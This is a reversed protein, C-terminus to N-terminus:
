CRVALVALGRGGGRAPAAPRRNQPPAAGRGSRWGSRLRRRGALHAGAGDWLAAAAALRRRPQPAEKEFLAPGPNIREQQTSTTTRQSRPPECRGLAHAAHAHSLAWRVGLRGSTRTRNLPQTDQLLSKVTAFSNASKRRREKRHLRTWCIRPM